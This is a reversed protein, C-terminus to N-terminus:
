RSAGNRDVAAILGEALAIAVLQARTRSQTKTMANRVHSRVTEPSLVLDAAIRASDYGLALLRVVELERRTLPRDPLLGAAGTMLGLAAPNPRSRILEPGDPEARASLVVFLALWRGTATSAHAAYQVRLLKGHADRVVREDYLEGTRLLKQWAADADDGDRGDLTRGAEAGVVRHREYGYLQIAADNIDVYVRSRDVLSM